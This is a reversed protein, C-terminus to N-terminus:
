SDLQEKKDIPKTGLVKGTGVGWDTISSVVDIHSADLLTVRERVVIHVHGMTMAPTSPVFVTLTDNDNKEMVFGLVATGPDYLRIMAPLYSDNTEVFGKLVSSVIKYGPIQSLLNREFKEYTWSGIRTRILAGIIYVLILLVLLALLIVAGVGLSSDLGLQKGLLELLEVMKVLVFIGVGVPMLAVLGYVLNTKIHSNSEKM